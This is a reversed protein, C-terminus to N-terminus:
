AAVAGGESRSPHLPGERPRRAAADDRTLPSRDSQRSWPTPLPKSAELCSIRSRAIYPAFCTFRAYSPKWPPAVHRSGISWLCCVIAGCAGNFLGRRRPSWRGVDIAQCRQEVLWFDGGRHAARWSPFANALGPRAVIMRRLWAHQRSDDDAYEHEARQQARRATTSPHTSSPNRIEPRASM